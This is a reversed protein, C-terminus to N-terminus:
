FKSRFIVEELESICDNSTVLLFDQLVRDFVKRPISDRFLAASILINTDLIVRKTM